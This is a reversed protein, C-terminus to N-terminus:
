EAYAGQNCFLVKGGSNEGPPSLILIDQKGNFNQMSTMFWSYNTNGIGEVNIGFKKATYAITRWASAGGGGPEQAVTLAVREDFAGCFMAMKGAYSCGSVAIHELDINQWQGKAKVIELGDILRSLGWAWKSYNGNDYLEPYLVNFPDNKYRTSTSEYKAVQDHSFSM